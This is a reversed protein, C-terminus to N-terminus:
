GDAAGQRPIARSCYSDGNFVWNHWARCYHPLAHSCYGCDHCRVLREHVHGGTSVPLVLTTGAGYAVEDCDVIYEPM